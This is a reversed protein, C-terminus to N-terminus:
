RFSAPFRGESRAPAACHRLGATLTTCSGTSFGVAVRDGGATRLLSLAAMRGFLNPPLSLKGDQDPFRAAHRGSVGCDAV